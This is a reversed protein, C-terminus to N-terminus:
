ERTPADLQMLQGEPVIEGDPDVEEDAHTVEEQEAQV